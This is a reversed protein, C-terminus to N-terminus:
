HKYVHEIQPPPGQRFESHRVQGGAHGIWGGVAVCMVASVLTITSLLVAKKPFKWNAILAIVALVATIYFLYQFDEARDRHVDLWKQADEYSMSYIRDYGRLGYHVVPWASACGVFVVILAVAQAQRSRMLLAIVLALVGMATAYVPLPNLLVHLYEPSKLTEILQQLENM